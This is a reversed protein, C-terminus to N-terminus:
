FSKRIVVIHLFYFRGFDFEIDKECVASSVVIGHSTRWQYWFNPKLSSLVIPIFIISSISMHLRALILHVLDFMGGIPNM